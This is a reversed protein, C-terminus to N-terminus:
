VKLPKMSKGTRTGRKRGGGAIDHTREIREELMRALLKHVLDEEGSGAFAPDHLIHKVLGAGVAHVQANNGFHVVAQGPVAGDLVNALKRGNRQVAALHGLSAQQKLRTSSTTNELRAKIKREGSISAMAM